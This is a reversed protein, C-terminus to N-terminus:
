EGEGGAIMEAFSETRSGHFVASCALVLLGEDSKGPM